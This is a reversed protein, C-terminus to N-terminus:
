FSARLGVYLARGSTGYGKILEYDEDFLNEVRLYAERDDGLDYTAIADVVAYDPLGNQRDGAYRLNVGGSLTPTVAVDAGLSVEHRAVRSWGGNSTKSDTYTYGATLGLIENFQHSASLELGHRRSHGPVQVYGGGTWWGNEDYTSVFDILDKADLYFLTVRASGGIWTKEVGLDASTSEERSQMDANGYLPDHLQYLSPARFGNGASARLALDDAMRYVGAARISTFNGFDSHDDHRLSLSADIQEGFSQSVEMFVGNTRTSNGLAKEKETDAGFALRTRASLDLEGQYAYKVRDGKFDTCSSDQCSQRDIKYYSAEVHNSVAGLAFDGYLRAGRTESPTFDRDPTIPYGDFEGRSNEAFGNIGVTVGNAFSYQGYGSIRNSRYGDAESDSSQASFGHTTLHSYTLAGEANDSKGAVSYSFRRTAYRGYEAALSQEMGEKTARKTTINVVGAVANAGYLASNSGALVEIRSVDATSLTGLDFAGYTGAPDGVEIGDILVPVYQGPAGRLTFSSATGIPGYSRFQFGPLRQLYDIVRADGTRALAEDTVVTVTAGTRSVPTESRNASITITDLEVADQAAAPLACLATSVLLVTRFPRM